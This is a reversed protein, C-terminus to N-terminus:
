LIVAAQATSRSNTYITRARRSRGKGGKPTGKPERQGDKPIGKTTKPCRHSGKPAAEPHCAGNAISNCPLFYFECVAASPRFRCGGNSISNCPLVYFECVAASPRFRCAGNAISNCAPFGSKPFHANRTCSVGVKKPTSKSRHARPNLPTPSELVAGAYLIQCAMKSAYNM